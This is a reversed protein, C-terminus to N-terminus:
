EVKSAKPPLKAREAKIKGSETNMKPTIKPKKAKQLPRLAANLKKQINKSAKGDKEMQKLM